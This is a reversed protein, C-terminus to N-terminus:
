KLGIVVWFYIRDNVNIHNLFNRLDIHKHIQYMLSHIVKMQGQMKKNYMKCFPKLQDKISKSVVVAVLQVSAVTCFYIVHPVRTCLSHGRQQQGSNSEVWHGM